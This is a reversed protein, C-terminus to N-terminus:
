QILSVGFNTWIEYGDCDALIERVLSIKCIGASSFFLKSGKEGDDM